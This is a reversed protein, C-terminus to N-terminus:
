FKENIRLKIIKAAKNKIVIMTETLPTVTENPPKLRKSLTEKKILGLSRM